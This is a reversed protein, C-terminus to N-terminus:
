GAWKKIHGFRSVSEYVTQRDEGRALKEFQGAEIRALETAYALCDAAARRPVIVVGDYDGLVIDGPHVSVHKTTQGPMVIPVEFEVINYRPASSTPTIFRGFCQLGSEVISQADRFGGDVVIGLCGKIKATMNINDGWAAAEDYGGTAYVLVCGPYMKHFLEYKAQKAGSPYKVPAGMVAEGRLCFAPGVVKMGRVLGSITHSLIQHHLGMERLTDGVIATRLRGIGACLEELKTDM